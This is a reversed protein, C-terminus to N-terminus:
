TRPQTYSGQIPKTEHAQKGGHPCVQEQKALTEHPLMFSFTMKGAQKEADGEQQMNKIQDVYDSPTLPPEQTDPARELWTQRFAKANGEEEGGGGESGGANAAAAGRGEGAASSMSRARMRWLSRAARMTRRRRSHWVCLGFGVPLLHVRDRGGMGREVMGPADAGHPHM